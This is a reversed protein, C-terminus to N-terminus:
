IIIFKIIVDNRNSKPEVEIRGLFSQVEKVFVIMCYNKNKNKKQFTLNHSVTM